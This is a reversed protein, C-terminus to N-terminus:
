INSCYMNEYTVKTYESLFCLNQMGQFCVNCLSNLFTIPYFDHFAFDRSQRWFKECHLLCFLVPNNEAITTGFSYYEISHIIDLTGWNKTMPLILPSETGSTLQATRRTLTELPQDCWVLICDDTKRKKEFIDDQIDKLLAKQRCILVSLSDM